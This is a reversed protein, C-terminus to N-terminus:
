RSSSAVLWLRSAGKRSRSVVAGSNDRCVIAIGQRDRVVDVTGGPHEHRLIRAGVRRFSRLGEEVGTALYQGLGLQDM